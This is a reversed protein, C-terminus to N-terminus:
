TLNKNVKKPLPKALGFRIPNRFGKQGYGRIHSKAGSLSFMQYGNKSRRKYRNVGWFDNM